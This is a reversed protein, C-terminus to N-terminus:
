IAETIVRLLKVKKEVYKSNKDICYIVLQPVKDKGALTRIKDKLRDFDSSPAENEYILLEEKSLEKVAKNIDIDACWDGPNVLVGISFELSDQTRGGSIKRTREIKGLSNWLAVKGVNNPRTGSLVIDWDNLMESDTVKEIWEKFTKLNEMRSINYKSKSLLNDWIKKFKINTWVRHSGNSLKSDEKGLSNIFKDAIVLNNHLQEKDNEFLTTQLHAGAFNMEANKAKKMKNSATIRLFAVGHSKKILPGVKDPTLDDSRYKLLDYRLEIDLDSLFEFRKVNDKTMWIRPLTEYNIRYGFWRAMQMLTDAQNVKRSFYTCVLGELTLGRSLTNGGIILFAPAYTKCISLNTPYILRVEPTTSDGRSDCVPEYKCNDVCLHIGTDYHLTSNDELMIHHVNGKLALLDEQLLNFDPYPLIDKPLALRLSKGYQPYTMALLEPNFVKTQKDFVTNCLSLFDENPVHELWRRIATAINSHYKTKMSHHVLMSIPAKSKRYRQIAVCICFWCIADKLSQPLQIAKLKKLDCESIADLLAIDGEAKQKGKKHNGPIDNIIPMGDMTGNVHDGFIQKPGMYLDSESLVTIFDSPYLKERGSENLFNGYPTATYAVYNMAKYATQTTDTENTNGNVIRTIYDNIRTLEAKTISATNLSAQDAEDDILLVRLKDKVNRDKNLWTLLTKLRNSNKLCVIFYRKRSSDDFELNSILNTTNLTANDIPLWALNGSKLDSVFRSETQKRLSEIIGSLIIFLNWGYDAAMSMVAGMNATKGSQVNGMVLGHITKKESGDNLYNLITKSNEEIDHISAGSFGMDHLHRKYEQWASHEKESPKRDGTGRDVPNVTTTFPIERIKEEEFFDVFDKWEIYTFKCYDDEENAAQKAIFEECEKVDSKGCLRLEDWSMGKKRKRTLWRYWDGYKEEYYDRKAM